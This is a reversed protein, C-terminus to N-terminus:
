ATLLLHEVKSGKSMNEKAWMPRLNMYNCCRLMEEASEASSLPVIHDIHWLGRNHWGMGKQFQKEIHTKLTEWECGLIQSTRLGKPYGMRQFAIATRARVRNKLSNLEDTARRLRRGANIREKNISNWRRKIELRTASTEKSWEKARAAIKAKKEPTLSARYRMMAERSRAKNYKKDLERAAVPDSLRKERRHAKIKDANSIRWKAVSDRRAQPNSKASKQSKAFRNSFELPTLWAEPNVCRPQYAWFVLNTTADIDGRKLPGYKSVTSM